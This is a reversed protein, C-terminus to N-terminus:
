RTAGAQAKATAMTLQSLTGATVPTCVVWAHFTQTGTANFNDVFGGWATAPTTATAGQPASQSIEVGTASTDFGGSIAFTGTPCSAAGPTSKPTTATGNAATKVASQVYTVNALATASAATTANTASPVVLGTSLKGATIAGNAIKGTGVANKALKGNTVAKNKLQKTGVSNKGLTMGAYATGSLAVVLAVIAVLLGASPTKLRWRRGETRTNSPAGRRGNLMRRM